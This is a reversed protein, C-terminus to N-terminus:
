QTAALGSAHASRPATTVCVRASVTSPISATCDSLKMVTAISLSHGYCSCVCASLVTFNVSLFLLAYCTLTLSFCDRNISSMLPFVIELCLVKQNLSAGLFPPDGLNKSDDVKCAAFIAKFRELVVGSFPWQTRIKCALKSTLQVHGTFFLIEGRSKLPCIRRRLQLTM